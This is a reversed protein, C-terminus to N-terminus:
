GGEEPEKVGYVKRIGHGKIKHQLTRLPVDLLRAAESQNGSVQRLAEVLMDREFREMREKLSGTSPAAVAPAAGAAPEPTPKRAGWIREPLDRAGIRPGDAIVVARDIANRLERVNGPWPYHVLLEVAEPEFSRPPGGEAASALRLFRAALPAIDERRERLPPLHLVMTSIRYYLDSRFAGAACMAELDRHTAAILRVDVEIERTSGLRVVRKTELVRLLAAQAPAPLEGVEDLLVTGGDAAEFVGKQQQVAGTFAGKEHGFLAGEVLQGPIAGCNLAVLPGARRPGSEHILRAVVEKGAGTEGLLLVPIASRSLRPILDAVARM